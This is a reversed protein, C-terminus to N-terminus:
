RNIRVTTWPPRIDFLKEL